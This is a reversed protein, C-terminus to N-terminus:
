YNKEVEVRFYKLAECRYTKEVKNSAGGFKTNPNITKASLIYFLSCTKSSVRYTLIIDGYILQRSLKEGYFYGCVGHEFDVSVM